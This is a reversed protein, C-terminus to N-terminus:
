KSTNVVTTAPGYQVPVSKVHQSVTAGTANDVFTTTVTLINAAFDSIFDGRGTFRVTQNDRDPQIMDPVCQSCNQCCTTVLEVFPYLDLTGYNKSNDNNFFSFRGYLNTDMPINYAEYYGRELVVTVYASTNPPVVTPMTPVTVNRTVTETYTNTESFNYEAGLEQNFGKEIDIFKIKLKTKRSYSVKPSIKCGETTTNTTTTTVTESHSITYYTQEESSTNNFYQENYIFPTLTTVNPVEEYIDTGEAILGSSDIEEYSYIQRYACPTSAPHSQCPRPIQDSTPTPLYNTDFNWEGLGERQSLNVPNQVVNFFNRNLYEDFNYLTYASPNVENPNCSKKM